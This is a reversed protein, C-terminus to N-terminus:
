PAIARETAVIRIGAAVLTAGINAFPDGAYISM